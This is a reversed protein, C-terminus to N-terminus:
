NPMPSMLDLMINAVPTKMSQTSLYFGDVRELYYGFTHDYPNWQDFMNKVQQYDRGKVKKSSAYSSIVINGFIITFGGASDIFGQIYGIKQEVTATGWWYGDFQIREMSQSPSVIILFLFLIIISIKAYKKM